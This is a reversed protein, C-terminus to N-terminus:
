PRRRGGFLEAGLGAEEIVRRAREYDEEAVVLRRPFIGISGEVISMHTDAVLCRIDADRLLAEAFGVLVIDNTRILDRM